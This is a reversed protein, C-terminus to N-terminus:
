ICVDFLLQVDPTPDALELEESLVNHIYAQQLHVSYLPLVNLSLLRQEEELEKKSKKRKKMNATKEMGNLDVFEVQVDDVMEETKDRKSFFHTIPQDPHSRKM